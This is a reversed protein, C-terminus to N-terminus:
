TYWKRFIYIKIGKEEAEIFANKLANLGPLVRLAGPPCVSPEEKTEGVFSEEQITEITGFQEEITADVWDYKNDTAIEEKTLPAIMQINCSPFSVSMGVGNHHISTKNGEILMSGYGNKKDGNVNLGQSKCNCIECNKMRNKKSVVMVGSECSDILLNDLQFIAFGGIGVDKAETITMNQIKIVDVMKPDSSFGGKFICNDRSAGIITVPFDIIITKGKEDHVGNHLYLVRRKKKRAKKLAKTLSKKGPKVRLAGDPCSFTTAM